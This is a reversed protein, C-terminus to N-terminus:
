GCNRAISLSCILVGQEMVFSVCGHSTAAAPILPGPARDPGAFVDLPRPCGGAPRGTRVGAESIIGDSM